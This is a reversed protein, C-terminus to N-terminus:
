FYFTSQFRLSNLTSGQIGQNGSGISDRDFYNWLSWKIELRIGSNPRLSIMTFLRYGSGSYAPIYFYDSINAEYNFVRADFADVKFTRLGLVFIKMDSQWALDSSYLLGHQVATDNKTSSFKKWFLNNTWKLDETLAWRLRLDTQVTKEEHPNAIRNLRRSRFRLRSEFSELNKSELHLHLDSVRIPVPHFYTREKSEFHDYALLLSARSVPKFRASFLIGKENNAAIGNRDYAGAFPSYFRSSYNRFGASFTIKRSSYKLTANGARANQNTRAWEGSLYVRSWHTSLALSQGGFFRSDEIGNLDIRQSSAWPISWNGRLGAISISLHKSHGWKEYELNIIAESRLTSKRRDLEGDSRHLGTSGFSSIFAKGEHDSDLTSDVNRRSLAFNVSFDNWESSLAIGRHPRNEDSSSKGKVASLSRRVRMGQTPSSFSQSGLLIGSAFRFEYDGLIIQNNIRKSESQFKLFASM